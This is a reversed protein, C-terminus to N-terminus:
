HVEKGKEDILRFIQTYEFKRLKWFDETALASEPIRSLEGYRLSDITVIDKYEPRYGIVPRAVPISQECAAMHSFYPPLSGTMSVIVNTAAKGDISYLHYM